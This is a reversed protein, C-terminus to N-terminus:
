FGGRAIIFVALGVVSIGIVALVTVVLSWRPGTDEQIASPSQIIPQSPHIKTDERATAIESSSFPWEQPLDPIGSILGLEYLKAIGKSIRARMAPSMQELAAVGERNGGTKKVIEIINEVVDGQFIDPTGDQDEDKFIEMLQDYAERETAPMEALDNYTKGNFHIKPM